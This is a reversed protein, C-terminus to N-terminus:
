VVQGRIVKTKTMVFEIIKQIVVAFVSAGVLVFVVTVAYQLWSNGIMRNLGLREIVRFIVMHSLYIEMSISSVFKTIRNELLYSKRAAGGACIVTWSLLAVSAFLMTFTNGGAVYYLVASIVIVCLSIWRNLSGIKDRYLYILGGAIFYCACFLINTRDVDFYSICVYNYILSMGFAM